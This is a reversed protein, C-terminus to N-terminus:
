SLFRQIRDHSIEGNLLRSLGTQTTLGFSSILYDTYIDLLEKNNM